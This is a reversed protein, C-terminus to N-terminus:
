APLDRGVVTLLDTVEDITMGSPYICPTTLGAARYQALREVILGPDPPLCTQEVIDSVDRMGNAAFHRAYNPMMEWYAAADAALSAAPGVRILLSTDPAPGDASLREVAERSADVSLWNLIVGDAERAALQSMKPGLAALHLPVGAGFGAVQTTFTRLERLYDRTHTLVSDPYPLGLAEIHPRHSVGFGLLFRGDSDEHITSATLAMARASRITSAAIAPGARLGTTVSLAAQSCLMPDRGDVSLGSVHGTEPFLMVSFGADESVMAVRRSEAMSVGKMAVGVPM